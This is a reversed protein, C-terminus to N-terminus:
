YDLLYVNKFIKGFYDFMQDTILNNVELDLKNYETFLTRLTITNTMTTNHYKVISMM